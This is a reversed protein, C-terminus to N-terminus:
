EMMMAMKLHERSKEVAIEESAIATGIETGDTEESLRIDIM